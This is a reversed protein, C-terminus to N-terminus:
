RFDILVGNCLVEGAEYASGLIRYSKGNSGNLILWYGTDHPDYGTSASVIQVDTDGNKWLAHLFALYFKEAPLDKTADHKAQEIIGIENKVDRSAYFAEFSGYAQQAAEIRNKEALTDVWEEPLPDNEYCLLFRYLLPYPDAHFVLSVPVNYPLAEEYSREDFQGVYSLICRDKKWEVHIQFFPADADFDGDERAFSWEKFYNPGVTLLVRVVQKKNSDLPAFSETPSPIVVTKTREHRIVARVAVITLALAVISTGITIAFRIWFARRAKRRKESETVALFRERSASSAPELDRESIEKCGHKEADSLVADRLMREFDHKKM